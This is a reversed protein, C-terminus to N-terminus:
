RKNVEVIYYNLRSKLVPIHYISMRSSLFFINDLVDDIGSCNYFTSHSSFASGTQRQVIVQSLHGPLTELPSDKEKMATTNKM